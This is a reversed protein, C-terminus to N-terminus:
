PRNVTEPTPPYPARVIPAHARRGPSARRAVVKFGAREFMALTGRFVDASPVREGETSRSRIPRWCRRATTALTTSAPLSSRTRSAAAARGAGSSSASSRGSRAQRRHARAGELAGAARLGRAPRHQDLRRGGRRRLRGPGARPGGELEGRCRDGDGPSPAGQRRELLRLWPDPLVRVLVVQTAARSSSSPWTPFASRPSPGSTSPWTPSRVHHPSRLGDYIGPRGLTEPRTPDGWSRELSRPQRGTESETVRHPGTGGPAALDRWARKVSGPGPRVSRGHGLGRRPPAPPGDAVDWRRRARDDLQDTGAREIRLQRRGEPDQDFAADRQDDRCPGPTGALRREEVGQHHKRGGPTRVISSAPAISVNSQSGCAGSSPQRRVCVGSAIAARTVPPWGGGIVGSLVTRRM